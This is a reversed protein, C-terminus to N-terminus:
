FIVEITLLKETNINLIYFKIGNMAGELTVGRIILAFIM